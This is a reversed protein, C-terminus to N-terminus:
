AFHDKLYGLISREIGPFTGNSFSHDAGKIRLYEVPIELRRLAGVFTDSQQVPVVDDADGHIVLFPPLGPRLQWLPSAAQFEKENGDYDIGMLQDVYSWAIPLYQEHPRTLDVPGCLDVVVNARSEPDASVGLTAALFGGASVGLAAIKTPDINWDESSARAFRLFTKVDEVPAPFPHLPALRYNCCAAAYGQHAFEIALERIDEKCGSIWGGGHLFLVLPLRQETDPRFLDFRLEGGGAVTYPQDILAIM